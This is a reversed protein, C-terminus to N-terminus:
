SRMSHVGARLVALMSSAVTIAGNRCVSVLVCAGVQSQPDWRWERSYGWVGRRCRENGTRRNGSSAYGNLRANSIMPSPCRMPRCRTRRNGAWLHVETHYPHPQVHTPPPPELRITLDYSDIDYFRDPLLEGLQVLLLIAHVRRFGCLTMRTHIDNANLRAEHARKVHRAQLLSHHYTRPIQLYRPTYSFKSYKLNRHLDQSRTLSISPPSSAHM